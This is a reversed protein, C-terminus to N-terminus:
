LWSKRQRKAWGRTKLFRRLGHESVYDFCKCRGRITSLWPYLRCASSFLVVGLAFCDLAFSDYFASLAMEPAQYSPKGRHGCTVKQGLVAMSFDILKM